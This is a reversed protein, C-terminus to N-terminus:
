KIGSVVLLRMNGGNEGIYLRGRAGDVALSIPSQLHLTNGATLNLNVESATTLSADIVILRNNDQDAVLVTNDAAVALMMPYSLQGVGSGKTGSGYSRVTHGGADVVHVQSSIWTSVVFQNGALPIAHYPNFQLCIERVASGRTKFEQLKKAECCAVILNSDTTVHLAVPQVATSWKIVDNSGSLDVRHMQNNDSDSVYLSNNVGCAALGFSSLGLGPVSLSPRSTFTTVDYVAM